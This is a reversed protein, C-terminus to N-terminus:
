KTMENKDEKIYLLCSAVIWAVYCRYIVERVIRAGFWPVLNPSGFHHSGLQFRVLRMEPKALVVGERELVLNQGDYLQHGLVIREEM